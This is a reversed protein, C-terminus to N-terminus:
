HCMRADVGGMNFNALVLLTSSVRMFSMDGFFQHPTYVPATFGAYDWNAQCRRWQKSICM